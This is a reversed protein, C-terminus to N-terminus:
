FVEFNARWSAAAADDGALFAKLADFDKHAVMRVAPYSVVYDWQDRGLVRVKRGIGYRRCWNRITQGSREVLEAAKEVTMQDSYPLPVCLPETM